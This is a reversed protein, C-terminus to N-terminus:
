LSVDAPMMLATADDAGDLIDSSAAPPGHLDCELVEESM